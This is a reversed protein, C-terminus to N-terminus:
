RKGNNSGFCKISSKDREGGKGVGGGVGSGGQEPIHKIKITFYTTIVAIIIFFLYTFNDKFFVPLFNTIQLIIFVILLLLSLGSLYYFIHEFDLNKLAHKM